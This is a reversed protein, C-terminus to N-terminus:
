VGTDGGTTTSTQDPLSANLVSAVSVARDGVLLFIRGDQTEIGRVRGKVVTSTDIADENQNLADVRVSYTGPPVPNGDKGIGDWVFTNQGIARTTDAAYVEVGTEDYFRIKADIASEGLAYTIEVPEGSAEVNFESAIYRVDMGVYGLANGAANSLQLSVLDDLKQNTNISQEVQSFQVIQNTFETSDMPNLPDQNQLQTTLLTLFQDFDEGFSAKQQDTRTASYVTGSLSVDSTM